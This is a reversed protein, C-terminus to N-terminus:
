QSRPSRSGAELSKKLLLQCFGWNHLDENEEVEKMQEEFSLRSLEEWLEPAQRGETVSIEADWHGVEEQLRLIERYTEQCVPCRELFHPIVESVVTDHELGGSILKALTELSLHAHEM